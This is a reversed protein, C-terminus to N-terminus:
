RKTLEMRNLDKDLDRWKLVDIGERHEVAFWRFFLVAIIGWLIFGGVIKMILGAVMQDTQVSIGWLRPLALYSSYLPRSGFTLFSAPVTPVLSQLFLYVMQGPYSLRPIEIVPSVIPMWMIVASVVLIVHTLFHFNHHQIATNVVLPWHTIV